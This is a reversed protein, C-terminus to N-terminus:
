GRRARPVCAHCCVSLPRPEPACAAPRVRMTKVISLKVGLPATEGFKKREAKNAKEAEKAAALREEHQAIPVQKPPIGEECYIRHYLESGLNIKDNAEHTVYVNGPRPPVQPVVFPLENWEDRSEAVQRTELPLHSAASRSADEALGHLTAACLRLVDRHGTLGWQLVRYTAASVLQHDAPLELHLCPQTRDVARAFPTVAARHAAATTAPAAPAAPSSASKEGPKPKKRSRAPKLDELVVVDGDEDEYGGDAEALARALALDSETQSNFREPHHHERRRRAGRGLDGPSFRAEEDLAMQHAIAADSSM